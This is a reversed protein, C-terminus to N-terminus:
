TNGKGNKRWRKELAKRSNVKREEETLSGFGKLPSKVLGGISSLELHKEKPLCAFGKKTSTM